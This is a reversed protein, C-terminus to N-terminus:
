EELKRAAEGMMKLASAINRFNTLKDDLDAANMERWADTLTTFSQTHSGSSAMEWIVSFEVSDIAWSGHTRLTDIAAEFAKSELCLVESADDSNAWYHVFSNVEGMLIPFTDSKDIRTNADTNTDIDIM